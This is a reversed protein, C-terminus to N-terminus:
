EKLMKELIEIFVNKQEPQYKISQHSVSEKINWESAKDDM